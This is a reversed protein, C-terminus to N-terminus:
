VRPVCPLDLAKIKEDYEEETINGEHFNMEIEIRQCIAHVEDGDLPEETADFFEVLPIVIDQYSKM